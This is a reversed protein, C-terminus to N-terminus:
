KIIWRDTLHHYWGHLPLARRRTSWWHKVLTGRFNRFCPIEAFPPFHAVINGKRNSSFDFRSSLVVFDRIPRHCVIMMRLCISSAVHLSEKRGPYLEWPLCPSTLNGQSRSCILMRWITSARQRERITFFPRWKFNWSVLEMFHDM